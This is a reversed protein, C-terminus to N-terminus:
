FEKRGILLDVSVEFVDALVWLYSLTPEIRANEWESICQQTVGVSKALSNQSIGKEKRLQKLNDAFKTVM